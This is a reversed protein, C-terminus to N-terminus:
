EYCFRAYVVDGAVCGGQSLRWEFGACLPFKGLWTAYSNGGVLSGSKDLRILRNTAQHDGVVYLQFLRGRQGAMGASYCRIFCARLNFNTKVSPSMDVGSVTEWKRSKMNFGRGSDFLAVDGALITYTDEEWNM